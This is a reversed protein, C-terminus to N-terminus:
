EGADGAQAGGDVAPAAGADLAKRVLRRPEERADRKCLGSEHDCHWNQSCTAYCGGTLKRYGITAAVATGAMIAAGVPGGAGPVGQMICALGSGMLLVSALACTLRSLWRTAHVGTSTVRM